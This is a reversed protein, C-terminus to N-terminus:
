QIVIKGVFIKDKSKIKVIYMGAIFNNNDLKLQKNSFNNNAVTQGSLNVIEYNYNDANPLAITIYNSEYYVDLINNNAIAIQLPFHTAQSYKELVSTSNGGILNDFALFKSGDNLTTLLSNTPIFIETSDNWNALGNSDIDNIFTFIKNTNKFVNNNFSFTNGSQKFDIMGGIGNNQASAVPIYFTKQWALNGASDIKSVMPVKITQQPQGTGNLTVYSTNSGIYISHNYFAANVFNTQASDKAIIKSWMEIGLTDDLKKVITNTGNYYAIYLASDQHFIKSNSATGYIMLGSNLNTNFIIQGSDNLKLIRLDKSQNSTNKHVYLTYINNSDDTTISEAVDVFNVAMNNTDKFNFQWISDGTTSNIKLLSLHLKATANTDINVNTAIIFDELKNKGSTHAKGVFNSTFTKKWIIAGSNNYNIGQLVNTYENVGALIFNNNNLSAICNYNYNCGAANCTDIEIQNFIINSNESFAALGSELLGFKNVIFNTGIHNIGINYINDTTTRSNYTSRWELHTLNQAAVKNTFFLVGIFVIIKKM